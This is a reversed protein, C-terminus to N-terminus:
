TPSEVHYTLVKMRMRHAEPGLFAPVVRVPSAWPNWFCHAPSSTTHLPLPMPPFPFCSLSDTPPCFSFLITWFASLACPAWPSVCEFAQSCLVTDWNAFMQATCMESDREVHMQSMKIKTTHPWVSWLSFDLIRLGSNKGWTFKGVDGNM